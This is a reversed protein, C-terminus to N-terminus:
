LFDIKSFIVQVATVRQVTGEEVAAVVGGASTVQDLVVSILVISRDLLELSLMEVELIQDVLHVM